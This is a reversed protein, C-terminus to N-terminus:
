KGCGGGGGARKAKLAAAKATVKGALKKLLWQAPDPINPMPLGSVLVNSAGQTVFGVMGPPVAPDTGMLAGVASAVADAAMQASAAAANLVNAGIAASQEAADAQSTAKAEADAAVHADIVSAAIGAMAVSKSAIQMAKALTRAVGATSPTCATCMDTQRAARMGGIFVKSSGLFVTFYPVFGGCTPALGLDGVRAAPMGGVLVQMSTGLMIAGMTPLPVPTPVPPVLSPPHLHAHPIGLYFSGLHAAPFAPMAASLSNTMVAVGMNTLEAGVNITGLIAAGVKNVVAAPNEQPKLEALKTFSEERAELVNGAAPSQAKVQVIRAHAAAALAKMDVTV